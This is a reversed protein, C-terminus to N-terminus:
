VIHIIDLNRSPGVSSGALHSRHEWSEDDEGFLARMGYVVFLGYM